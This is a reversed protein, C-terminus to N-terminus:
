CFFVSPMFPSVAPMVSLGTPMLFCVHRCCSPSLSISPSVHLHISLAWHLMLFPCVCCLFLWSRMFSLVLFPRAKYLPARGVHATSCLFFLPVAYSFSLNAYFFFRTSLCSPSMSMSPSGGDWRRWPAYSFSPSLMLFPCILMFFFRTSLLISVHVHLSVGRGVQAMSCLFCLPVAYSFSLNAYFFFRTSLLISVQVHLSVGRGVQAMSCLLFLPVAYSFSLNAYFLFTDVVPHFGGDWRRWPAYSSSPSLMLFPCILMFFFRTSLLISVHVHFSVGRGVQAMSCLFFLPVAYSFCLNAYFLFTDVVPHFMSMSPSGGEWRRWPAYSFSPSLMLFPCILMFFSVHRCCSPSMSMSPSGGDWRRWPAYSSSPSLMLFACILMFFFRTSLLISVQVHLSVGRGVQAMSCLLFLPVAYSFSLNAYFFFRTSLLISVHVHLSVGRGVQAMSCLFFLPVAYSFSLNAYFLFTDVVPHLCPCPPLGGTGGAGHLM